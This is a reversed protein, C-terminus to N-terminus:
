SDYEWVDSLDENDKFDNDKFDNDKVDNDKVDNRPTNTAQQFRRLSRPNHDM